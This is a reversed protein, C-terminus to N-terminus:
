PLRSRDRHFGPPSFFWAYPISFERAGLYVIYLLALPLIRPNLRRLRHYALALAPLTHALTPLLFHWSLPLFVAVALYLIDFSFLLAALKGTRTQAPLPYRTADHYGHWVEQWWFARLSSPAGHHYATLRPNPAITYGHQCARLCFEYDESTRLSPSFGRLSEFASRAIILHGSNIYRRPTYTSVSWLRDLWSAPAPATVTSGTIRTPDIRTDHVTSRINAIWEHGFTVDADIFVLIDGEAHTATLNRVAAVSPASSADIVTAGHQAAVLRTGDTSAHDGLLVQYAIQSRRLAEINAPLTRSLVGAENRAPIVVSVDPANTMPRISCSSGPSLM